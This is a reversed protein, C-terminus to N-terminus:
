QMPQFFFSDLESDDVIMNKTNPIQEKIRKLEGFVRQRGYDSLFWNDRSIDFGDFTVVRFDVDPFYMEYLLLSRRAHFSKCDNNYLDAALEAAVPLSGGVVFVADVRYPKDSVFIYNTIKNIDYM